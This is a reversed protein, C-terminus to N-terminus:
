FSLFKIRRWDGFLVNRLMVAMQQADYFMMMNRDTCVVSRRSEHNM